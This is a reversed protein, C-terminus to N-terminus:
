RYCLPFDKVRSILHQDGRGIGLADDGVAVACKNCDATKGMLFQYALRM